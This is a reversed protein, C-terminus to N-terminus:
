PLGEIKFSEYRAAYARVSNEGSSNSFWLGAQGNISGPITVSTLQQGDIYAFYTNGIAEVVIKNPHSGFDITKRNWEGVKTAEIISWNNSNDVTAFAIQNRASILLLGISPSDTNHRIIIASAAAGDCPFCVPYPDFEELIVEVRFNSWTYNDLIAMHYDRREEFPSTVTFKGNAMGLTGYLIKWDSKIGNEFNDSFSPLSSTNTPQITPPLTATVIVPALATSTPASITGAMSIQTAGGQTAISVIAIRTLEAEQRMKELNQNGIVNIISGVITGVVGIVAVIILVINGKQQEQSM